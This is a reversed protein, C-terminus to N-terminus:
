PRRRRVEVGEAALDGPGSDLSLRHRGAQDVATGVRAGNALLQLEGDLAMGVLARGPDGHDLNTVVDGGRGVNAALLFGGFLDAELRGDLMQVVDRLSVQVFPDLGEGAIGGDIADEDLHRQWVAEIRIVRELLDRWM